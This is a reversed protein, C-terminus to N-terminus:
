FMINKEGILMKIENLCENSASISYQKSLQRVRKEEEYYLYVPFDGPHKKLVHQILTLTKQNQHKQEIKLFIKKTANKVLEEVKMAKEAIIKVGDEGKNEVKGEIYLLAEPTLIENIKSFVKPFVVIEAEGSHDSGKLFAMQDGKKTKIPKVNEVMVAVRVSNVNPINKLDSLFTHPFQWLLNSYRQLPHGSLYFGFVEKEHALREDESLPPVDVYTFGSEDPKFFGIQNANKQEKEADELADDLTALLSGREVGFEDFAGSLILSELTRKNVNKLSVRRCLDFLDKYDGLQRRNKIIENIAQLGVNKIALLGFQIGGKDMTFFAHSKNISPPYIEIGKRRLESIYSALKEQNGIVSSLLAAFFAVPENAKLFALQYAIMSYAVAHSRNFGYNAFKVLLNYIDVAMHEGYGNKVCGAVFHEREKELIDRKKKSIARRLLDAEGLSFGAMMSAIQMIQEQYVIVGYTKKLVPELDPHPYSVRRKGHKAAIYAPINEMPGPRYLANVAVIDEFESPKLNTLVQRMGSSELQFIGTTDGASLLDFTKQDNYPIMDLQLKRGTSKEINHLIDEILSLNRLGLFDMKLLGIEELDEMPFQTLAINEHGARIAIVDTLPKESIVVGAAHTSSHRPFGEIKCALEFVKKADESRNILKELEPSEKFAKELTIGQRSPIRKALQDITKQEVDLLRGADRVSARAALTGFTIIQAVHEKGYKRGVYEIVEDRRTDSFDIDIDPMSVREPNLFREFLLEHKMPDVHTIYLVYAVLSGAASGRGPGTLIGNDRAYKMFDWVILFYDNFGMDDIVSLEYEIREIIENTVDNYRAQLGQFCLNRLAEKSSIHPPLPFKPLIPKGLSLTLICEDAIKASNEMAEFYNDELAEAMEETSKLYFEANNISLLGTGRKIALLAEYAIADGKEVYHVNNTAALPAGIKEALRATLKNVKAEEPLGHDVIELFFHEKDFIRKFLNAIGLAQDYEEHLLCQGIEGDLGASLAFIGETYNSLTEIHIAKTQENEKLQIQSSIKLLHRYGIENKALLVLPYSRGNKVSSTMVNAELGIIPKIEAKRCAKYFPITGYMVNKDTIALSNFGLRKAQAVLKELRCASELLSYESHIRLHTFRM